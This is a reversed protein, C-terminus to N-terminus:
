QEVGPYGAPPWTGQCSAPRYMECSTDSSARKCRDSACGTVICRQWPRQDPAWCGLVTPSAPPPSSSSSGGSGTTSGGAGGVGASEDGPYGAPPWTGGCSATVYMQCSTDSPSRKCRSNGCSGPYCFQWPRQDPAWCGLVTGANSPPTSAAGGSGTSGGGSSTTPWTLQSKVTGACATVASPWDTNFVRINYITLYSMLAGCDQAPTQESSEGANLSGFRASRSRIFERQTGESTGDGPWLTSGKWGYFTGQDDSGALVADDHFAIQSDNAYYTAIDRPYRMQIPLGPFAAKMADVVGTKLTRLDNDTGYDSGELDGGWWEGWPGLFGAQMFPIVDRYDNILGQVSAIDRRIRAATDSSGSKWTIPTEYYFRVFVKVSGQGGDRIAQFIQALRASLGSSAGDGPNGLVAYVRIIGYGNNLTYSVRDSGATYNGDKDLQIGGPQAGNRAVVTLAESASEGTSPETSAASSCGAIGFAIMSLVCSTRLATM